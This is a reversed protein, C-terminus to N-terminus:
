GSQKLLKATTIAQGLHRQTHEALHVLLGVVTTPLKKRGVYRVDYITRTDLTRLRKEADALSADVAELLSKLSGEAVSEQRLAQLQEPSLQGGALYTLLRDISGGIHRLQFGLSPLGEPRQWVQEDSLGATHRQLDERVQQFSFLVPMILPHADRLPGRLWPEPSPDPV